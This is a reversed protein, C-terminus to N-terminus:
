ANSALGYAVGFEAAVRDWSFRSMATEKASTGLAKAREPDRLLGTIAKAIGISDVDVLLGDIGDTILEPIGGIRAAIVPKGCRMAELVSLPCADQFTIHCYIDALALPLSVDELYGAITTSNTM